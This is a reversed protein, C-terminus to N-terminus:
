GSIKELEDALTRIYCWWKRESMYQRENLLHVYNAYCGVKQSYQSHINLLHSNLKQKV